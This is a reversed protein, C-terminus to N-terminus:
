SFISYSWSQLFSSYMSFSFSRMWSISHLVGFCDSLLLSSSTCPLYLARFTWYLSNTSSMLCFSFSSSYVYVLNTSVLISSCSSSNCSCFLASSFALSRNLFWVRSWFCSILFNFNFISFSSSSSCISCFSVFYSFSITSEFRSSEWADCFVIRDTSSLCSNDIVAWIFCPTFLM